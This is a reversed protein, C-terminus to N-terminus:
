FEEWLELSERVQFCKWLCIITICKWPICVMNTRWILFTFYLGRGWTVLDLYFIELILHSTSYAMLALFNWFVFEIMLSPSLCFTHSLWPFSNELCPPSSQCLPLSAFLRWNLFWSLSTPSSNFPSIKCSLLLPHPSATTPFSPQFTLFPLKPTPGRCPLITSCLADGNQVVHNRSAKYDNWKKKIIPYFSSIKRSKPSSSHWLLRRLKTM